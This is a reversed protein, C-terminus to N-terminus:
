CSPARYKTDEVGRFDARNLLVTGVIWRQPMWGMDEAGATDDQNSSVTSVGGATDETGTSDVQGGYGRPASGATTDELHVMKLYRDSGSGGLISRVESDVDGGLESREELHM